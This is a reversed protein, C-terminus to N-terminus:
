QKVDQSAAGYWGLWANGFSGTARLNVDLGAAAPLGGGSLQYHGATFKYSIPQAADEAARSVGLFAMLLGALASSRVCM